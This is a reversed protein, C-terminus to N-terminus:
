EPGEEPLNVDSSDKGGLSGGAGDKRWQKLDPMTELRKRDLRRIGRHGRQDMEIVVARPIKRFCM